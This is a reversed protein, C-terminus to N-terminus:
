GFRCSYTMKFVIFLKLIYNQKFIATYETTCTWVDSCVKKLKKIEWFLKIDNVVPQHRHPHERSLKSSESRVLKSCIITGHMGRSARSSSSHGVSRCVETSSNIAWFNSSRFYWIKISQSSPEWVNLCILALVFPLVLFSRTWNLYTLPLEHSILKKTLNFYLSIIKHIRELCCINGSFIFVVSPDLSRKDSYLAFMGVM